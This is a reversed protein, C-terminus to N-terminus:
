SLLWISGYAFYSYNSDLISWYITPSIM